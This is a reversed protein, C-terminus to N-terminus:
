NTREGNTQTLHYGVTHLFDITIDAPKPETNVQFGTQLFEDELLIVNDATSLDAIHDSFVYVWKRELGSQPLTTHTLLNPIEGFHDIDNYNDIGVILGGAWEIDELELVATSRSTLPGPLLSKLHRLRIVAGAESAGAAAGLALKKIVQDDANFVVLVHKMTINGETVGPELSLAATRKEM